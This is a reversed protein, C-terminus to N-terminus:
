QRQRTEPEVAADAVVSSIEGVGLTTQRSACPFVAALAGDLYVGVATEPPALTRYHDGTISCAVERDVFGTSTVAGDQWSALATVRELQERAPPTRQCTACLCIDGGLMRVDYDDIREEEAATEICELVAARQTHGGPPPTLSRFFIIARRHDAREVATKCRDLWRALRKDDIEDKTESM